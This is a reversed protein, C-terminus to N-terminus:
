AWKKEVDIRGDARKRARWGDVHEGKDPRNPNFHPTADSDGDSLFIETGPPSDKLIQEAAQLAENYHV